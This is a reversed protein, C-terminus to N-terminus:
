RVVISSRDPRARRLLEGPACGSFARFDRTLHSQDYYGCHLALEAWPVRDVGDLLGLATRFRHLRSLTKAGIGVDRAFLSALHKRSCREARTLSDISAQGGSGAIGALVADVLPHAARRRDLRQLLWGEICAFRRADDACHLLRERLALCGDGLLGSLPLVRDALLHADHGLIPRAGATRFLVGILAQGHPAETDLPGQQLGSYWLDRFPERHERGGAGDVLRYQTPGLNVLLHSGGGPLIRDRQYNVRGEGFWYLEVFDALAPHPRCWAVRWCGLADDQRHEVIRGAVALEM